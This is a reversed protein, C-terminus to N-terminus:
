INDNFHHLNAGGVFQGFQNIATGHFASNECGQNQTAFYSIASSLSRIQVQSNFPVAQRFVRDQLIVLIHVQVVQNSQFITDFDHFYGIALIVCGCAIAAQM